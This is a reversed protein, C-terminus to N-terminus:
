AALSGAVGDDDDIIQTELVTGPYQYFAGSRREFFGAGISCAQQRAIALDPYWKGRRHPTVFRFMLM